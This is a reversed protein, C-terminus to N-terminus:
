QTNGVKEEMQMLAFNLAHLKNEAQDSRSTLVIPVKAGVVIGGIKANGFLMLSKYLVNGVEISPVILIDADGQIPGTFKKHIVAEKSIALDFSIPGYVTAEPYAEFRKTLADAMVSSAMKPNITEAASLLAVKPHTIGMKHASHIANQIISVFQEESPAIVMAADSLLIPRTFHPLEIMTVHSLVDQRKLHHEEQLVEKLLVHTSVGGKLLIHAEGRAVSEVARRVMESENDCSIYQWTEEIDINPLSDFIVFHMDPYAVKVQKALALIEERSGGPVAIIPM